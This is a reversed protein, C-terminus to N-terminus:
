LVALFCRENSYFLRDTRRRDTWFRFVASLVYYWFTSRVSVHFTEKKGKPKHQSRFLLWGAGIVGDWLVAVLAITGAIGANIGAYNTLFVLFYTYFVNYALNEGFSGMGYGLKIGLSLKRKPKELTNNM